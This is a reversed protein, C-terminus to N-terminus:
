RTSIRTFQALPKDLWTTITVVSPFSVRGGKALNTLSPVSCGLTTALQTWTLGRLVRQSDLAQYLAHADFRVIGSGGAASPLKVLPLSAGSHTQMFREPAEDLWCLMQLVGDGEVAGRERMNSMTAASVGIARALQQWSLARAQREADLANYLAQFDFM